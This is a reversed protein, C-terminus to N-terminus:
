VPVPQAREPHAGLSLERHDHLLSRPNRDCIAHTAAKGLARIASMTHAPDIVPLDSGHVIRDIGYTALCLELSLRGYSSTEFFLPLSTLRGTDVGRSQLRELQFPAGGALLAFVVNLNPWRAAGHEIWALYSTQMGATYDVLAPWWGPRAPAAQAADPHVFLFGENQELRDLIPKLGNLDLLRSAGVCVGAFGPRPEGAALAHLRGGAAEVLEAVGDNYTTLLQRREPVPLEEFGLTPQLSVVAVDIGAADLAAIRRELDHERLDFPFRGERTTLASGRLFPPEKRRHLLEILAAPWLHQHLDYTTM